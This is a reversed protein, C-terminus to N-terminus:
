GKGPARYSATLQGAKKAIEVFEASTWAQITQVDSVGGLAAGVMAAAVADSADEGESIVMFDTDGTTFYYHLLKGGAAEVFKRIMIARDQPNSIMDRATEATFKGKTISIPM